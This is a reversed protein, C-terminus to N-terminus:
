QARMGGGLPPVARMGSGLPQPARMVGGALPWVYPGGGRPIWPSSGREIQAGPTFSQFVRPVFAGRDPDIGELPPAREGGITPMAVPGDVRAPLRAPNDRFARLIERTPAAGGYRAALEPDQYPVNGWQSPDHRSEDGGIVPRNKDILLFRDHSIHIHHDVFIVVAWGWLQPVIPWSVWGCGFGGITAGNFFDGFFYPPYDPYPWAGYVVSPNCVPVYVIEPSPTEITIAEPATRVIEQVQPTVVFRGASQARRRLRQIAEMVAKPDALFAEGLRKTWELNVDMMELISPFPALSKVSPDWDQAQLAAFLQDGKLSANRPDKVWRAVEVVDLPYTSAM